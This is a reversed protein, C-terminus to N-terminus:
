LLRCAWRTFVALLNDVGSKRPFWCGNVVTEWVVDLNVDFYGHAMRNRMNSRWPVEVHKQTFEAYGDM